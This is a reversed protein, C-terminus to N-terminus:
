FVFHAISFMGHIYWVMPSERLQFPHAKSPNANQATALKAANQTPNDLPPAGANPANATGNIDNTIEGSVAAPNNNGTKMKESKKPTQAYRLWALQRTTLIATMPTTVPVNIPHAVACM